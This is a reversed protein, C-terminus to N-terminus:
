AIARVNALAAGIYYVSGDWYIALINVANATTTIAPVVGGPARVTGPYVLAWGGTGDETVKLTFSGPGLTPATFTLTCTATLTISQHQGANWDITHTSGSNGHATESPFGIVGSNFRVSEIDTYGDSTISNGTLTINGVTLASLAGLTTIGMSATITGSIASPFVVTFYNVTTHTISQPIVVMHSDDIVQIVPYAGFNHHVTVSTQSTFTTSIYSTAPDYSWVLDTGNSKLVYGDSGLGLRATVNSANRYIIDGRNSLISDSIKGSFTNWDAHKLYGDVATTAARFSLEQTNLSLGGTVASVNLTVPSHGGASFTTFDAKSLYGDQAASAKKVQITTGSGIVNNSTVGGFTLISSGTETLNGKTVAPEKTNFIAFDGKALYGDQAASAKKVQISTGTGIVNSTTVGGFTLISSGTETLNGKTVTNEKNYFTNWDAHKLYGDVATTAARLSLEQTNLSLGGTVASANLTVPNHISNSFSTFDNKGLYGDQVASAKKVQISTGTGIVNNTTVGGFTLISSGTETLNGKTVAPEKNFFTTFNDKGLYGDVSASAKNLTISTGTGIVVGSGDSINIASTTNSTLNGKTLAPEKNYFTNWDARKLYGDLATTAARFSLEQTNLSLGGTVASANLTVPSHGGSSFTAFDAKSLYGDQVASAKKAQITVNPGVTSSAGNVITLVSSATESISGKSQANEKNSFTTFDGKALYGDQAASAKKVQISTGSGIVNSTTVGGFTLISSGTETLNGKTVAPEKNYFTNWDAHKLYGDLATTAARFSLEQTNLSLGGTVASTNLTVPSHVNNSFTTFNDKGLYGDQVASAKKVQISTGSVGIVSGSGGTITLISSTAETLNGKAVAPEKNYFTTFDGSALYGNVSGSAAQTAVTLQADTLHQYNGGAANLGELNNHLVILPTTFNTNHATGNYAVTVTTAHNSTVFGMQGLKDTAAVTFAPQAVKMTIMGYNPSINTITASTVSFLHNWINFTVTSENSYGTPVIITASNTSAIASIQFIGSPTQLYSAITNTAHAMFYTGVFQGSTITATRTNTGLATITVSGSSVPVVQYIARTLTTVRGGGVDNVGVYTTFDWVGSTISTRGIPTNYIWAVFARTDTDAAGAATLETATCTQVGSQSGSTTVASGEVATSIRFSGTAYSTSLIYYTTGATIGTPLAITTSFVIPASIPLGHNAWTITANAGISITVISSVSTVPTKSLSNIRIGNGATGDQKLGSPSVQSNFVPTSNYFAINPGASMAAPSSNIWSTGNFRIVDDLTPTPAVVDVLDNLRYGQYIRVNVRGVTASKTILRGVRIELNPPDPTGVRLKGPIAASLYLVDGATTAVGGAFPLVSAVAVNGATVVAVRVYASPSTTNIYLMLQARTTTSAGLNVIIAGGVETYSLGASGSDIVTFTYANGATGGVLCDLAMGQTVLYASGIRNSDLDNVDGRVTVFGYNADPIDQTACGLLFATADTDAKALAITPCDNTGGNYIGTIYVAQGNYITVGTNNYCRRLDEQGIQLNVDRGANLSLTKWVTDYYLKGEVYSGVTPSTNFFVKEATLSYTGINVDTSAGTYPVKNNFVTWDGKALYGDQVTSAKKAQITVNPGVTSSAGNIITLVSSATESISGKTQANEKNSFTTFDGKALYGDQVASAKKVQITTGSGIVSGTGGTVTLISSTTETLNGKTVAPEKNYFTNWDAHKLYGDVATTAARASLEQTNLSLGGTVASVNLTIPNHISNTFSTFDNKGLYGDQVASAKKAQITVNPGVTSSAGNVITLVSSATESISGKSQANEKNSFTTFDGKALYGDQAASAKKVQISTGSVGIVSGSGGTITLISSTAETLNGKAVAPEKNYFTTWDTQKLYGDVSASAATTFGHQHDSLAYSGAVGVNPAVGVLMKVPTGVTLYDLGGPNHRSAHSSISIGDINGVSTINHTNMNLDGGMSRSGSALLYQTHDDASLGTLASHVTVGSGGGGGTGTGTGPQPRVDVFQKIGGNKLVIINALPFSSYDMFTPTNNSAAASALIQTQCQLSGLVVSVRGDSTLIVTDSRYYGDIMTKLTGGADYSDANVQYQDVTETIGNTGRFYSFYADAYGDYSILDLGYYYSGSAITFKRNSTGQIVGLGSNLARKRTGYLYTQLQEMPATLYNRTRHLFRIGDNDTIVTALLVTDGYGPPSLTTTIVDAAHNYIVYNTTNATLSINPYLSWVGHATDNYPSGRRVWADGATVRVSLGGADTVIGGDCVGTSTYDAFFDAFDVDRGVSYEYQMSGIIRVLDENRVQIIGALTSGTVGSYHLTDVSQNAFVKGTSSENYIDLINSTFNGGQVLVQTGVGASGIHIVNACGAAELGSLFVFAGSDARVVDCTVDKYAVHAAVASMFLQGYNTIYFCTQIPNSAYGPLLAAPVAAFGGTLGAYSGADTVTVGVGINMGLGGILMSLNTAVLQAGGSVIVGNSCTSISVGHLVNFTGATACRVLCNTVGSVGMLSPGCIYGGILTFLDANPNVAAIFVTDMRNDASRIYIGMPVTIPLEAYIGPYVIIEYPNSAAAGATIAAAVAAGLAGYGIVPTYDADSGVQGVTFHNKIKRTYWGKAGGAKPIGYYYGDGPSAVDGSLTVTNSNRYVSQNFTLVNEKGSFTTFDNKGLYGDQVVSAKKAQITVNPGVTSSAGNVITLVSSATESISGKSQANEKNSFTTFDGKALYGDQAASAKKVQISTGTGIVNGSTVGGFTLISSGTETLNGKTVAPEKNYFTNWDAHKLYGDVATTAARASLEQTNLSLGGIVASTNLTVPSHISNTFSTFDTKSLYGDQAASAKKAQITVNPGVTSSAGNIITLVSSATESISGKTQANEKNSFTAFDGKALYGDQVASAKKVQISTGSGIVNSTTTGGFTLIGSGTETLNGKTVTNEKNYFTNWDAHKLYGDLATTAARFALEQTNLSLGGTVASTNLTVPNHISNTFSTFDNKGLYGDQVASAKKAQITVNPGVTSSAGNIITLVSSATESISGKTQANEKNYFTTWNDKGLYGDSSASAKNITILTNPGVTAGAGNTITITSATGSSITGKTQIPEKGTLFTARTIKRYASLVNDWVAIEYGDAYADTSTLTHFNDDAPRSTLDSYTRTALDSLNSGSKSVAAWGISDTKWHDGVDLSLENAATRVLAVDDNIVLKNSYGDLLIGSM